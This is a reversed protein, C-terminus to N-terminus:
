ILLSFPLLFVLFLCASTAIKRTDHDEREFAYYTAPVLIGLLALGLGAILMTRELMGGISRISFPAAYGALILGELSIVAAVGLVLIVNLKHGHVKRGLVSRGGIVILAVGTLSLLYSCAM